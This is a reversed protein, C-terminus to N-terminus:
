VVVHFWIYNKEEVQEMGVTIEGGYKECIKKARFLGLGRKQDQSKTSFGREFFKGITELKMNEDIQNKILFVIRDNESDIEMMVHHFTEDCAEYANDVLTGVIEILLHESIGSIIELNKVVVDTQVYSPSRVIKSYLFGALVKDSIRLLPLYQRSDNERAAEAIYRSQQKVLEEYTDVTLHMNLIAHIHNDYEHQKARIDKVLEELPEVYLKYLKLEKEKQQMMLYNNRWDIIGWIVVIVMLLFMLFVRYDFTGSMLFDLVLYVSVLLAGM